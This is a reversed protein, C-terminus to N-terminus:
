CVCGVFAFRQVMVGEVEVREVFMEYPRVWTGMEGYLAEELESKTMTESLEISFVWADLCRGAEHETIPTQCFPCTPNTM